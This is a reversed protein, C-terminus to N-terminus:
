DGRADTADAHAPPTERARLAARANRLSRGVMVTTPHEGGLVRQTTREAEELTKVAERLDDLTADTDQYLAKAYNWRLRLAYEHNEGLVRRAVPMVKRLLAKAEEFRRLRRLTDTYNLAAIITHEHEEGNLRVRVSYLDQFMSLAEEKRGM